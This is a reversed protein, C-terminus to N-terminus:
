LNVLKYIRDTLDVKEVLQVINQERLSELYRVLPVYMRPKGSLYRKSIINHNKMLIECMVRASTVNNKLLELVIQHYEKPFTDMSDLEIKEENAEMETKMIPDTFDFIDYQKEEANDIPKSIIIPEVPLLKNERRTVNNMSHQNILVNLRHLQRDLLPVQADLHKKIDFPIQIDEPIEKIFKELKWGNQIKTLIEDLEYDIRNFGDIIEKVINPPINTHQEFHSIGFRRVEGTQLHKVIYQYRLPRGCECPTEPNVFGNDIYDELIWDDLLLEIEESTVHEPLVIGKDKAMINAFVTKKGRKMENLLFDKQNETLSNLIKDREEVSLILGM